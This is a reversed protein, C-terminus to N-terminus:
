KSLEHNKDCIIALPKDGIRLLLLVTNGTCRPALRLRQRWQDPTDVFGRSHIAIDGLGRCRLERRLKKLNFPLVANVRYGTLWPSALPRDGTLYGLQPDIMALGLSNALNQLLHARLIARDVEYLYAALPMIEASLEAEASFSIREPLRTARRRSTKLAGFWLVIQRCESAVSIVEIEWESPIRQYDLAPSAKVAVADSRACARSIVSFPPLSQSLSTLRRGDKRRAPDFFYAAAPVQWERADAVLPWCGHGYVALNHRCLMVRGPHIDAVIVRGNAALGIADGGIGCTLDAIPSYGAFRQSVYSTVKEASAQQLGEGCFLMQEARTFKKRAKSRWYVQQSVLAAQRASTERRLVKMRTLIDDYEAAITLLRQGAVSALFRIDQASLEM